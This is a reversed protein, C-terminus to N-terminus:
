DSGECPSWDTEYVIKYVLRNPLVGPLSGHIRVMLEAQARDKGFSTISSSGDDEIWEIAYEKHSWIVPPPDDARPSGLEPPNMDM